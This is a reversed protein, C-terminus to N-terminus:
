IESIDMSTPLNDHKYSSAERGAVQPEKPKDKRAWAEYALRFDKYKYDKMVCTNFFEEYSMGQRTDIYARLREQYEKSTNELSKKSKLTFSFNKESEKKSIDKSIDKKVRQTNETLSNCIDLDAKGSKMFGSKGNVYIPKETKYLDVLLCALKGTNLFWKTKRSMDTKSSILDKEKLKKIAGDLEYKTFGLIEVWSDGKRYLEHTCPAKFKYFGNGKQKFYFIMQQLLITALVGGTIENLEKRYTILKEDQAILNLFEDYKGM